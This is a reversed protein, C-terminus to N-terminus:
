GKGPCAKNIAAFAPSFGRLNFTDTVVSNHPAPSRIVAQRGREFAGVVAHGDRAFAYRQNTYFALAAGTSSADHAIWAAVVKQGIAWAEKARARWNM